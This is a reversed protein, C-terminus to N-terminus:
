LRIKERLTHLDACSNITVVTAQRDIKRLLGTLVRGPGMEVFVEVGEALLRRMSQEWLVPRRVQRAILDVADQERYYEATVNSVVPIRPANVEMRILEQRLKDEVGALLSSHFPGSVTLLRGRGKHEQIKQALAQLATVDGAAVIQGPANFNVLEVVDNDMHKRVQEALGELAEKELGMVALMGGGQPYAEEMWAGRKRVLALAEPWPLVEAAVLASVEGLSFGAVAYIDDVSKNICSCFARWMAVETLLLAPQTHSTVNLQDAPGDFCLDRIDAARDFVERSAEFSDYFDRGMGVAQAGQGPFLVALRPSAHRDRTNGDTEHTDRVPKEM